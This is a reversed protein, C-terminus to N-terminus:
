RDGGPVSGGWRQQAAQRSVGVRSAVEGWSYGFARLGAVAQGICADVEASLAVLGALGDVDGAAVRKGAAKLVRRAFAVYADNEVVPREQRTLSEKVGSRVDALVPM